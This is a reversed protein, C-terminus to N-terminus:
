KLYVTQENENWEVLLNLREAIFRLPVYLRQDIIQAPVDLIVEEENVYARNDSVTLVINVDDKIVTAQNLSSDWLIEANFLAFLSRVPALTRGDKIVPYDSMYLYEKNYNINIVNPVPHPVPGETYEATMGGQNYGYDETDEIGTIQEYTYEKNVLKEYYTKLIDNNTLANYILQALEANTIDSHPMFKNDFGNLIKCESLILVADKAYGSIENKDSFELETSPTLILNDNLGLARLVIVAADQRTIPNNIGFETESIGNIIGANKAIQIYSYYESDKSIDIFSLEEAEDSNKVNYAKVIYKVFEGRSAKKDPYFNEKDVEIVNLKVLYNIANNAWFDMPVDSFINKVEETNTPTSEGKVTVSSSVSGGGGGGGSGGVNVSPPPLIVISQSVELIAAELKSVFVDLSTIAGKQKEEMLKKTVNNKYTELSFSDYVSLNSPTIYVRNDENTILEDIDTHILINNFEIFIVNKLLDDKIAQNNNYSKNYLASVVLAKDVMNDYRKYINENKIGYFDEYKKLSVIILDSNDTNSLAYYPVLSDYLEVTKELSEFTFNEKMKSILSIQNAEDMLLFIETDFGFSEGDEKLDSIFDADSYNEIDRLNNIFSNIKDMTEVEYVSTAVEKYNTNDFYLNLSVDLAGSLILDGKIEYTGDNEILGEITQTTGSADTIVAKLTKGELFEYTTGKFVINQRINSTQPDTYKESKIEFDSFDYEDSFEVIIESTGSLATLTLDTNELTPVVSSFDESGYTVSKIYSKEEPILSLNIKEGDLTAISSPADEDNYKISGNGSKSIAVEANDRWKLFVAYAYDFKKSLSYMGITEEEGPTVFVTKKFVTYYGGYGNYLFAITGDKNFFPEYGEDKMWQSRYDVTGLTEFTWGHRVAIFIDASKNITIDCLKTHVPADISGGQGYKYVNDTALNYAKAVVVHTNGDYFYNDAASSGNEANANEFMKGKHTFVVPTTGFYDYTGINEVTITPAFETSESYGVTSFMSFILSLAIILSLKKM